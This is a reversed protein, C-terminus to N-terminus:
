LVTFLAYLEAGLTSIGQVGFDICFGIVAKKPGETKVMDTFENVASKFREYM